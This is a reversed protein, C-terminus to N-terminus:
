KMYRGLFELVTEYWAVTNNPKLVWHNEDPFVVLEAPVKHYLLAEFLHLGEGIPCRYDLEGHLILTPTKWNKM